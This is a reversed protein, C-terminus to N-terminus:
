HLVINHFHSPFFSDKHKFKLIVHAEHFKPSYSKPTSAKFHLM